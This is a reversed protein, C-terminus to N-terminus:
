GSRCQIKGSVIVNISNKRKLCDELVVLLSNADPPFYASCFEGHKELVSSVFGPNQHSYGNHEQRWGLSTLLYNLSSIPKRWPIKAAQKIFKAYQDVMSAVIMAFAEYTAFLGHRGTLLFGQLWGQLTHESLIEMVRGDPSM